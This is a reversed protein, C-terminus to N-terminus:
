AKGYSGCFLAAIKAGISFDIQNKDKKRTMGSVPEANKASYLPFSHRKANKIESIDKIETFMHLSATRM